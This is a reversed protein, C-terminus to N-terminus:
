AQGEKEPGLAALEALLKERRQAVTPKKAILNVVAETPTLGEINMPSSSVGASWITKGEASFRFRAITAYENPFVTNLRHLLPDILAEIEETTPTNM